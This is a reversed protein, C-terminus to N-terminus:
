AKGRRERREQLLLVAGAVFVGLCIAVDAVNFAPWHLRGWYVDLFDTVAQSRVRDVINGAAGGILSGLGLFLAMSYPANRVLRMVLVFVLAAAALFLWIQWTTGADNLFGFAAGHNLVHVIDFCGPIVNFGQGVAISRTVAIKTAQDLALWALATAFVVAYRNPRKEM